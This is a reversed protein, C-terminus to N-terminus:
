VFWGGYKSGLWLNRHLQLVQYFFEYQTDEVQQVQGTYPNIFVRKYYLIEQHIGFAEKNTKLSRFVWTRNKAPYIDVRNIPYETGVAQQARYEIESYPLPFQHNEVEKTNLYYHNPYIIKKLDDHFVYIAGTLSVIIVIIGTLLGLWKHLGLLFKKM